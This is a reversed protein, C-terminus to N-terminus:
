VKQKQVSLWGCFELKSTTHHFIIKELRYVTRFNKLNNAMRLSNRELITSKKLYQSKFKGDKKNKYYNLNESLSRQWRTVKESM